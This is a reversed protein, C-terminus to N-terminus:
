VCRQLVTNWNTGDPCVVEATAGHHMPQSAAAHAPAGALLVAAVIPLPALVLRSISRM